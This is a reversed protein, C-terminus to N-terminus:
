APWSGSGSFRVTAVFCIEIAGTCEAVGHGHQPTCHTIQLCSSSGNNGNKHLVGARVRWPPDPIHRPARDCLPNGALVYWERHRDSKGVCSNQCYAAHAVTFHPGSPENVMSRCVCCCTIPPLVHLMSRLQLMLIREQLHQFQISLHLVIPHIRGTFLETPVQKSECPTRQTRAPILSSPIARRM